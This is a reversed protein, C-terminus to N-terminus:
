RWLEDPMPFDEESASQANWQTGRVSFNGRDEYHALVTSAVRERRKHISFHEPSDSPPCFFYAEKAPPSTYCCNVSFKLNPPFGERRCMSFYDSRVPIEALGFTHSVPIDGMTWRSPARGRMPTCTPETYFAYPLILQTKRDGLWGTLPQLHEAAAAFHEAGYESRQSLSSHSRAVIGGGRNTGEGAFIFM